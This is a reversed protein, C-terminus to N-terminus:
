QRRIIGGTIKYFYHLTYRDLNLYRICVIWVDPPQASAHVRYYVYM